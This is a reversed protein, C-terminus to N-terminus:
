RGARPSAMGAWIEKYRQLTGGAQGWVRTRELRRKTYCNSINKHTDVCTTRTQKHQHTNFHVNAYTSTHVRLGRSLFNAKLSHGDKILSLIKQPGSADDPQGPHIVVSSWAEGTKVGLRKMSPMVPAHWWVQIKQKAHILMYTHTCTHVHTHPGSASTM